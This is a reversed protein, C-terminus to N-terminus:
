SSFFRGRAWRLAHGLHLAPFATGYSLAIRRYDALGRLPNTSLGGEDMEVKLGAHNEFRLGARRAEFFLAIDAGIPVGQEPLRFGSFMQAPFLCAPTWAGIRLWFRAPDVSPAHLKRGAQGVRVTSGCYVTRPDLSGEKPLDLWRDGAGLFSVHGAGGDLLGLAHNWGQAYCNDKAVVSRCWSLDRTEATLAPDPSSVLWVIDRTRWALLEQRMQRFHDDCRLFTSLAYITM